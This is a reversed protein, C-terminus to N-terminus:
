HTKILLETEDLLKEETLPSPPPPSTQRRDIIATTPLGLCALDERLMWQACLRVSPRESTCNIVALAALDHSKAADSISCPRADERTCAAVCVSRTETSTVGHFLELLLSSSSLPLLWSIEVSKCCCPNIATSIASSLLRRSCGAILTVIVIVIVIVVFM